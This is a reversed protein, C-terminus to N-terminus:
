GNWPVSLVAAWAVGARANSSSTSPGMALGTVRSTLGSTMASRTAKADAPMGTMKLVPRESANMLSCTMSGM